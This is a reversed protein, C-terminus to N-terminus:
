IPLRPLKPSLVAGACIGERLCPHIGNLCRSTCLLSLTPKPLVVTRVLLVFANNPQIHSSSFSQHETEACVGPALLNSASDQASTTSSNASTSATSYESSRDFRQPYLPKSAALSRDQSLSRVNSSRAPMEGDSTEVVKMKM